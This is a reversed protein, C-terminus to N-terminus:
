EQYMAATGCRWAVRTTESRKEQLWFHSHGVGMKCMYLTPKSGRMLDMQIKSEYSCINEEFCKFQKM